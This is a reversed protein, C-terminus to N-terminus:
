NFYKLCDKTEAHHGLHEKWAQIDQGEQPRCKEPINNYSAGGALNSNTIKFGFSYFALLIVALIVSSWLIIKGTKM